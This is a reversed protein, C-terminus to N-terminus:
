CSWLPLNLLTRRLQQQRPLSWSCVCHTAWEHLHPSVVTSGWPRNSKPLLASIGELLQTHQSYIVMAMKTFEAATPGGPPCCTRRFSSLDTRPLQPSHLHTHALVPSPRARLQRWPLDLRVVATNRSGAKLSDSGTAKHFCHSLSVLTPPWREWWHPPALRLALLPTSQSSDGRTVPSM